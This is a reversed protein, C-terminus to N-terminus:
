ALGPQPGVARVSPACPRRRASRARSARRLQLHAGARSACCRRGCRASSRRATCTSRCTSARRPTAPSTTAAAARRGAAAAPRRACAARGAAGPHHKQGEFWAGALGAGTRALLMPGLPTDVHAQATCARPDIPTPPTSMATNELAHEVPAARRLRAVAALGARARRGRAPTGTGFLPKMAKLVAVDNPPFADPWGLARMAIYHATWPGIGPLACLADILAEPERRPRAAHQSSPGRRRWRSRHAGARTRIIGLEAIQEIPATRSCGGARPLTRAITPGRRPAAADGFREVLRRALTRAAPWRSRSASCPACRSSSRTSAAPCACARRAPCTPSRRTSRTRARRRPRALPAGGRRRAGSRRRWRPAFRLQVRHARGPM